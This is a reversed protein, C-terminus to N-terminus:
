SGWFPGMRDTKSPTPPRDHQVPPQLMRSVEMHFSAHSSPPPPPCRGAHPGASCASGRAQMGVMRAGTGEEAGNSDM